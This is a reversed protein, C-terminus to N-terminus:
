LNTRPKLKPLWKEKEIIDLMEEYVQKWSKGSTKYIRRGIKPYYRKLRQVALEYDHETYETPKLEKTEAFLPFIM